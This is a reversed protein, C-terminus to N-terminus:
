GRASQQTIQGARGLLRHLQKAVDEATNLPFVPTQLTNQLALVTAIRGSTTAQIRERTPKGGLGLEVQLEGDTIVFDRSMRLNSASPDHVLAAIMDNHRRVRRLQGLVNQNYGHFDSIIAVLYDHTAIRSARQLIRELMEPNPKAPSDAALRQNYAVLTKLIRMVTSRSRHPRVVTFDNDDFLIAGVRDNADLVRWAAMAATQAATVSKMNVRTGFFMGIRQDVVLLVPRDREETYVRTHPSRLRATVKWDITRVDDGARYQRLEEFNLGRGRVRSAHRGSLLSHVPQRPLFSIGRAQHQLLTLQHLNVYVREDAVAEYSRSKSAQASDRRFILNTNM